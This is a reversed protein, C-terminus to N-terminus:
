KLAQKAVNTDIGILTEPSALLRAKAFTEGLFQKWNVQNYGQKFLNHIQEQTM